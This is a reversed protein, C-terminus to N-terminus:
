TQDSAAGVIWLRSAEWSWWGVVLHAGFGAVAIAQAPDADVFHTCGYATAARAKALALAEGQGEIGCVLPVGAYPTTALAAEIRSRETEAFAGILVARVSPFGPLAGPAAGHALIAALLRDDLALGHFPAEASPDTNTGAAKAARGTPTAEGREWPLRFLERMPHSLDPPFQITDPDHVAVLTLCARGEAEIAQRARHLTVGSSCCDDVLLVRRGAAPPGVWAIAGTAADHGLYSLPLALIGAAMVAPALGGRVIAVVEDPQWAAARDMQAAIMREIRDYGLFVPMRATDLGKWAATTRATGGEADDGQRAPPGSPTSM